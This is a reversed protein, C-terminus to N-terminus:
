GWYGLDTLRQRIAAAEAETYPSEDRSAAPAPRNEAFIPAQSAVHDPELAHLLVAGDMSEEVPLGPLYLITPAVDVICAQDLHHGKRVHPGAMIFIGDMRHDGSNGFASEVVANSAFALTGLAKHGEALLFGIDSAQRLHDGQYIEDRSFIKEVICNGTFPDQLRKLDEVIRQRLSDCHAPDVTGHPERGKRNLFIQGYNGRSYAQTREWDVDSLSLFFHDVQHLMTQRKNMGQALRLNAMGFYMALRYAMAPTLGARFLAYKLRTLPNDKLRLYGHEMLWANMNVFRHIPGFVHDSMVIVDTDGDTADTLARVTKDVETFFALTREGFDAAERRNYAPHAPDFVHWLEHQLRDIGAFHIMFFDWDPQRILDLGVGAHYAHISYLEGLVQAVNGRHYVQRHYRPYPGYRAEVEQLLSPPFAFDAVGPPALFDGLVFGNVPQPPYTLPVNIVGLSKGHRSLISWLTEAKLLSANVPMDGYGDSQRYLFEYIGHRGPNKGTMFSAWAPATVPPFTSRLPASTGRAILASLAPLRGARALPSLVDFTAGDLGIVLVRPM